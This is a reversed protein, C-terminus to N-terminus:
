SLGLFLISISTLNFNFGIVSLEDLIGRTHLSKQTYFSGLFQSIEFNMKFVELSRESIVFHVQFSQLYWHLSVLETGLVISSNM